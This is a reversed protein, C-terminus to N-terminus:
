KVMAENCVAIIKVIEPYQNALAVARDIEGANNPSEVYHNPVKDTWANLCDIWAGLMVYMEFDEDEKKLESIAKLTNSAHALEPQVNYTRIVKVGMASLIKMDEKLQPITPQIGRSKKRYGGYSIALYGPNGLIDKATVQKQIQMVNEVKRDQGFSVMMLGLLMCMSISLNYKM